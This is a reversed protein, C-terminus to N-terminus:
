VYLRSPAFFIVLLENMFYHKLYQAKMKEKQLAFNQPMAM